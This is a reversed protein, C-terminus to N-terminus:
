SSKCIIKQGDRRQSAVSRQVSPSDATQVVEDPGGARLVARGIKDKTIKRGLQQTLADAAKRYSGCEKYSAVLVDDELHTRVEAKLQQRIALKQEAGTVPLGMVTAVRQDAENVRAAVDVADIEIGNEGLAAVQALVITAPPRGAWVADPPTQDAVLIIPRGNPGVHCTVTLGDPWGLGRAFLVERNAGQWPTKGLRWLRGPVITKPHGRLALAKALAVALADFDVTWQLLLTEPVEVRLSEPCPIFFRTHGDPGTQPVVEEM